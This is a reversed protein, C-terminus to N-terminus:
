RILTITGKYEVTVGDFYTVSASYAYVGSPQEDDKFNGDWAADKDSGSSFVRQGLQNYINLQVAIINEGLIKFDDNRGDRNPTFTNPFFITRQTVEAKCEKATSEMNDCGYTDIGMVKIVISDGPQRNGVTYYTTDVTTTDFTAVQMNNITDVFVRYAIANDVPTWTFTIQNLSGVLGCNITTPDLRQAAVVQTRNDNECIKVASVYYTTTANPAVTLTTGSTLATGGVPSTYLKYTTGTTTSSPTITVQSGQTFCIPAISAPAVPAPGVNIIFPTRFENSCGGASNVSQAYIVTSNTLPGITYENGQALATGGSDVDFWRVQFGAPALARLTVSGGTCVNKVPDGDPIPPTAGQSCAGYVNMQVNADAVLATLSIRVGKYVTGARIAVIYVNTGPIVSATTPNLDFIQGTVTSDSKLLQFRIAAAAQAQALGAPLEVVSRITDGICGESAFFINQHLSAGLASLMLNFTSFNNTNADVANDPESINCLLCVGSGGTTQGVGSLCLPGGLYLIPKADVRCAKYIRLNKIATGPLGAKLIVEVADYPGTPRLIYIFKNGGAPILARVDFGKRDANAQGNLYTVTYISDLIAVNSFNNASDGLTILLSDRNTGISPFSLRQSVFGTTALMGTRLTSFNTEDADIANDPNSVNCQLCTPTISDSQANAPTECTPIAVASISIACASYLKATNPSTTNTPAPGANLSIEVRDFGSQPRIVIVHINTDTFIVTQADNNSVTSNYTSITLSGNTTNSLTQGPNKILVIISDGAAYTKPSILTQKVSSGAVGSPMSLTSATLDNADIAFQPNIVECQPCFVPAIAVVTDTSGTARECPAVSANLMPKTDKGTNTRQANQAIVSSNISIFAFLFVVSLTFSNKIM